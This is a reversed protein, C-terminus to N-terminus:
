CVSQSLNSPETTVQREATDDISGSMDPVAKAKFTGGPLVEPEAVIRPKPKTINFPQIETTKVVKTALCTKEASSAENKADLDRCLNEIDGKFDALPAILSDEVYDASYHLCWANAM